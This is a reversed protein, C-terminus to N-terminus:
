ERSGMGLARTRKVWPKLEDAGYLYDYRADGGAGKRFWDQYNRGHVRVYGVAATVHSSPRISRKFLPQDVNVFGVGADALWELFEPTNWSEHRVEVVLPYDGFTAYVDTLWHQGAEDNRFSWPFQVLVANLRGSGLMVDLGARAEKVDARTWASGREHTFRRYLKASFRFREVDSVRAIWRKAVEATPPRYFTSNIEILDLYGALYRLPDFGKPRPHPYVVGKWDQYDWGAVGVRVATEAM